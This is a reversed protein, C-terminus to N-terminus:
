WTYYYALFRNLSCVYIGHRNKNSQTVCPITCLPTVLNTESAVPPRVGINALLVGGALGALAAQTTTLTMSTAQVQFQLDTTSKGFNYTGVAHQPSYDSPCSYSWFQTPISGCNSKQHHVALWRKWRAMHAHSSITKVMLFIIVSSLNTRKAFILVLWHVSPFLSFWGVIAVVPNKATM